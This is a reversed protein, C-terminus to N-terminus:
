ISRTSRAWMNWVQRFVFNFCMKVVHSVLGVKKRRTKTAKRTKEKWSWGKEKKKRWRENKEKRGRGEKKKRRKAASDKGTRRIGRKSKSEQKKAWWQCGKLFLQCM